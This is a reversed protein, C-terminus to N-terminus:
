PAQPPNSSSAARIHEGILYLAEQRNFGARVYETFLEHMNAAMAALETVPDPPGPRNSM